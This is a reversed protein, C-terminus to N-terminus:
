FGPVMMSGVGAVLLGALWILFAKKAVQWYALAFVPVVFSLLCVLFWLVSVRKALVLVMLGGILNTLCGIVILSMGLARM